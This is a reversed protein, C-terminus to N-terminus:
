RGQDAQDPQPAADVTPGVRGGLGAFGLLVLGAAVGTASPAWDADAVATVLAGVVAVGMLAWSLLRFVPARFAQAFPWFHLGVVLVVWPLVLRPQDALRVLINAGVPIAVVMAVVCFGYTRLARPAPTPLPATAARLALWLAAVFGVVGVVRVVIELPGPLGGASAQVFVLGGVAGIVEGAAKRM